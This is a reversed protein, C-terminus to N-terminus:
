HPEEPRSKKKPSEVPSVPKKRLSAELEDLQRLVIDPPAPQAVEGRLLDEEEPGRWIPRVPKEEPEILSEDWVESKESKVTSAPVVVSPAEVPPFEPEEALLAVTGGSIGTIGLAIFLIWPQLHVSTSGGFATVAGSLYTLVAAVICVGGVFFLPLAAYTREAWTEGTSSVASATPELASRPATRRSTPYSM